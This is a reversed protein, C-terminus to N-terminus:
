GGGGGGRLGALGPLGRMEAGRVQGFGTLQCRIQHPVGGLVGGEGGGEGGGGGLAPARGRLPHQVLAALLEVALAGAIPALGPRSVTCQQDLSRDRTSNLPAVVDNCFYCGLRRQAAAEAPGASGGGGSGGGGGGSGGGGSTGGGSTGAAHGEAEVGSSSGGGASSPGAAAEGGGGAGGEAEPGMGHRMVLLGDFGLAATIAVRGHAAALLTPLWRSERTDTLLFVADHAAVLADLAAVDQPVAPPPCQPSLPLQCASSSFGAPLRRAGQSQLLPPHPVQIAAPM